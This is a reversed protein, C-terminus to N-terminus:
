EAEYIQAIPTMLGELKKAWGDRPSIFRIKECGAQRKLRRLEDRLFTKMVEFDKSYLCWISLRKIPKWADTFVELVMFGNYGDNDLMHLFARGEKIRMYVDEPEFTDVCKNLIIRLGENVLPWVTHLNEPAIYDSRM